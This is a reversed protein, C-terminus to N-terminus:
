RSGPPSEAFRARLYRTAEAPDPADAVASIVAAAVAGAIRVSAANGACVGGIAVLPRGADRAAERLADLGRPEYESRKSGTSFVPGFALYDVPRAASAALQERTHTSLGIVLRERAEPPVLEPALDDQGLHVGGAGALLALDFRDNVVLLAGAERARAAGWRALELAAGDATHKLRLQVVSAGGALAGELQARVGLKWRPDDDALVYIGRVRELGPKTM